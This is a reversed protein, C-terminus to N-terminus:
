PVDDDADNKKVTVIDHNRLGLEGLTKGYDVDKIKTGNSLKFDAFQPALDCMRSVKDVFEWVTASTLVKVVLNPAYSRTSNKIIVRDLSEGKLIASHPHVDGTGKKEAEQIVSKLIMAIREIELSQVTPAALKQICESILDQSIQAKYALMSTDLSLYIKILFDTAKKSVIPDSAFKVVM